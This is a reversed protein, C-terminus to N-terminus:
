RGEVQRIVDEIARVIERQVNAKNRKGVDFFWGRSGQNQEVFTSSGFVPHRFSGSNLLRPLKFQDGMKAKSVRVRVAASRAGTKVQVGISRAIRQRLGTTGTGRAPIALAANQADVVMPKAADKVAKRLRKLMEKDGAAKLRKAADALSQAGEIRLEVSM